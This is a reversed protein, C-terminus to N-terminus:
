GRARGSLSRVTTGFTWYGATDALAIRLYERRKFARLQDPFGPAGPAVPDPRGSWRRDWENDSGAALTGAQNILWPLWDPHARLSSLMPPSIICLDAIHAAVRPDCTRLSPQALDELIRDRTDSPFTM